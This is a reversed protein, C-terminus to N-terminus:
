AAKRYKTTTNLKANFYVSYALKTGLNEKQRVFNVVSSNIPFDEREALFTFQSNPNKLMFATEKRGDGIKYCKTNLAFAIALLSNHNQDKENKKPDIHMIWEKEENSISGWTKNQGAGYALSSNPNQKVFDKIEQTIEFAPQMSLKYAVLDDYKEKIFDRFMKSAKYTKNNFLGLTFQSNINEFAFKEIEPTIQEKSLNMAVWFAYDYKKFIKAAQIDEKEIKGYELNQILGTALRQHGNNRTRIKMKEKEEDLTLSSIELKDGTSLFTHFSNLNQAVAEAFATEPLIGKISDLVSIKDKENFDVLTFWIQEQNLRLGVEYAYATDSNLMAFKIDDEDPRFNENQALGIAFASNPNKRAFDKDTPNIKYNADRAIRYAYNTNFLEKAIERNGHDNLESYSPCGFYYQSDRLGKTIQSSRNLFSYLIFEKRKEIHNNACVSRAFWKDPNELVIKVDCDSFEKSFEVNRGVGEAFYSNPNKRVFELVRDKYKGKLLNPNQGLWYGLWSDNRETVKEIDEDTIEYSKHMAMVNASINGPYLCNNLLNKDENTVKVRDNQFVGFALKSAPNKRAQELLVKFLAPDLNPNQAAACTFWSDPQKKIIELDEEEFIYLPSKLLEYAFYSNHYKRALEKHRKTILPTLVGSEKKVDEASSIQDSSLLAVTTAIVVKNFGRRSVKSDVNSNAAAYIGGAAVIPSFDPPTEQCELRQKAVIAAKSMKNEYDSRTTLPKAYQDKPKQRDDSVINNSKILPRNELPIFTNTPVTKTSVPYIPNRVPRNNRQESYFLSNDGHSAMKEIKM